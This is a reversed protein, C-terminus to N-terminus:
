NKDCPCEPDRCGGSEDKEDGCRGCVEIPECDCEGAPYAPENYIACDSQHIKDPQSM